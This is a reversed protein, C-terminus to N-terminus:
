FSKRRENGREKEDFKGNAWDALGQMYDAEAKRYIEAERGKGTVAWGNRPPGGEDLCEGEYSYKRPCGESRKEVYGDSELRRLAQRVKYLSVNRGERDLSRFIERATVVSSHWNQVQECLKKFVIIKIEEM